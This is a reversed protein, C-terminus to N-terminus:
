FILGRKVLSLAWTKPARKKSPQNKLYTKTYQFQPNIKLIHKPINFFIMLNISTIVTKHKRVARKTTAKLNNASYSLKKAVM